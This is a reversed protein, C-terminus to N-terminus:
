NNCFRGGKSLRLFLLTLFDNITDDKRAKKVLVKDPLYHAHRTQLRTSTGLLIVSHDHYESHTHSFLALFLPSGLRCSRGRRQAGASWTLYRNYINLMWPSRHSGQVQSATGLLLEPPSVLETCNIYLGKSRHRSTANGSNRVRM